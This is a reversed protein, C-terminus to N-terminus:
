NIRIDGTEISSIKNVTTLANPKGSSKAPVANLLGLITNADNRAFAESLQKLTLDIKQSDSALPLPPIVHSLQGWLPLSPISLIILHAIVKSLNPLQRAYAILNLNHKRM